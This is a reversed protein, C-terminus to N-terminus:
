SNERLQRVTEQVRQTRTPKDEAAEIWRAIARRETMDMQEFKLRLAPNLILATVLDAPVSSEEQLGRAAEYRIAVIHAWRERLGFVGELEAVTARHGKQPAGWADLIVYWDESSRGTEEAILDDSMALPGRAQISM